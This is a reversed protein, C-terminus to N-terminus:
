ELSGFHTRLREKLKRILREAELPSELALRESLQEYSAGQEIYARLAEAETSSFRADAYSLIEQLTITLTLGMKGAAAAADDDYRTALTNVDRKSPGLNEEPAGGQRIRGFRARLHERVAFDLAGYLWGDFATPSDADPSALFTNLSRFENARLRELTLVVVERLDDVSHQLKRRRLGKHSRAWHELSPLM